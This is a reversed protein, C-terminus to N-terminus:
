WTSMDARNLQFGNWINQHFKECIYLVMLCRASWLLWLEPYDVKPTTTKQVYYINFIAKKVIYEHGSQLKFVM